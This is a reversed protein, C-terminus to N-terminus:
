LSQKLESMQQLYFDDKMELEGELQTIADLKLLKEYELEEFNKKLKKYERQMKKMKKEHKSDVSNSQKLNELISEDCASKKNASSKERSETSQLHLDEILLFKDDFNSKKERRLSNQSANRSLFNVISDRKSEINKLLKETTNTREYDDEKYSSPIGRREENENEVSIFSESTHHALFFDYEQKYNEIKESLDYIEEELRHSHEKLELNELELCDIHKKAEVM